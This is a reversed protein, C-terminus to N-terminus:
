EIDLRHGSRGGSPDDERVLDGPLKPNPRDICLAARVTGSAFKTAAESKPRALTDDHDVVDHGRAARDLLRDVRRPRCAPLNGSGRHEDISGTAPCPQVDWDFRQPAELNRGVRRGFTRQACFTNGRRM